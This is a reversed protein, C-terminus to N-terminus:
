SLLPMLVRRVSPVPNRMEDRRGTIGTMPPTALADYAARLTTYFLRLGMCSRYHRGQSDGVVRMNLVVGAPPKPERVRFRM